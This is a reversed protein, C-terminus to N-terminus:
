DFSITFVGRKIKLTRDIQKYTKTSYFEGLQRRLKAQELIKLRNKSYYEKYYKKLKERYQEDKRRKRQDELIKERHKYYYKKAYDSNM